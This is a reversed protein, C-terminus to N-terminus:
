SSIEMFRVTRVRPAFRGVHGSGSRGARAITTAANEDEPAPAFAAGPGDVLLGVYTAAARGFRNVDAGTPSGVSSLM